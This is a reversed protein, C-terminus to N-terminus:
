RARGGPPAAPLTAVFLDSRRDGDDPALNSALSTFAACRGDASLAIGWGGSEEDASEGSAPASVRFLTRSPRDLVFVV